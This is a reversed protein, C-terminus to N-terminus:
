SFRSYRVKTLFSLGAVVMFFVIGVFSYRVWDPTGPPPNLYQMRFNIASYALCFGGATYSGLYFLKYSPAQYLVTPNSRRALDGAVTQYTGVRAPQSANAANQSSSLNRALRPDSTRRIPTLLSTVRCRSSVFWRKAHVNNRLCIAIPTAQCRTMDILHVCRHDPSNQHSLYDTTSQSRHLRILPISRM